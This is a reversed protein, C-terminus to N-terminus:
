PDEALGEALRKRHDVIMKCIAERGPASKGMVPTTVAEVFLVTPGSPKGSPARSRKFQGGAQHWCNLVTDYFEQKATGRLSAFFQAELELSSLLRERRERERAISRQRKQDLEADLESIPPECRWNEADVLAQRSDEADIWAQRARALATAAQTWKKEFLDNQSRDRKRLLYIDAASRLERASRTLLAPGNAASV